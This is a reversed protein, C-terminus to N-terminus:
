SKKNVFKVSLSAVDISIGRRWISIRRYAEKAKKKLFVKKRKEFHLRSFGKKTSGVV